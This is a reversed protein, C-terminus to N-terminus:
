VDKFRAKEEEIRVVFKGHREKAMTKPGGPLKNKVINLGRLTPDSHDSGMMIQVDLAGQVETRCGELLNGEPYLVGHADGGAQHVTLAPGHERALARWEVYLNKLREVETSSKKEFGGVNRLQDCVLLGPNFRQCWGEIDKITYKSSGTLGSDIVIIKDARSLRAKYLAASGVPDRQIEDLTRGVTASVIRRKVDDIPEENIFWLVDKDEELQPAMWTVESALFTTKGLEVRSGLLLTNGRRLPGVALNLCGLRWSLGSALTSKSFLTEIDVKTEVSALFGGAEKSLFDDLEEKIDEMGIEDNGEFIESALGAIKNASARELLARLIAEDEEEEKRAELDEFIKRYTDRRDGRIEKHQVLLFWESFARWDVTSSSKAAYYSPFDATVKKCHETLDDLTIASILKDYNEKSGLIKLLDLEIQM